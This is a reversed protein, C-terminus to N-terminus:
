LVSGLVRDRPIDLLMCYARCIIAKLLSLDLFLHSFLVFANSLLSLCTKYAASRGGRKIKIRKEEASKKRRRRAAAAAPLVFTCIFSPNAYEGSWNRPLTDFPFNLLGVM